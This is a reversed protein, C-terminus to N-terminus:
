VLLLHRLDRPLSERYRAELELVKERERAFTHRRKWKPRPWWECGELLDWTLPEMHEADWLRARADRLRDALYTQHYDNQSAYAPRVCHRCAFAHCHYLIAARRGCVPCQYWDRVGYTVATQTFDIHYGHADDIMVWVGNDSRRFDQKFTIEGYYNKWQTTFRYDVPYNNIRRLTDLTIRRYQTTRRKM